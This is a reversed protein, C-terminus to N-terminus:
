SHVFLTCLLYSYLVTVYPVAQNLSSHFNHKTICACAIRTHEIMNLEALVHLVEQEFCVLPYMKHLWPHVLHAQISLKYM